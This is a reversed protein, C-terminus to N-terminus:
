HLGGLTEAKSLFETNPKREVRRSDLLYASLISHTPDEVAFWKRFLKMDIGPCTKGQAKASEFEYHGFIQDTKINFRSCLGELLLKLADFQEATYHTRGNLCIGINDENEGTVHAGMVTVPRGTEVKGNPLVVFHYGIDRFGRALHWERIEAVPAFRGSPTDSCHVTIRRPTM